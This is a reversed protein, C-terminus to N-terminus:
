YGGVEMKIAGQLVGESSASESVVVLQFVVHTLLEPADAFLKLYSAYLTQPLPPFFFLTGVIINFQMVSTIVTYSPSFVPCFVRTGVKTNLRM